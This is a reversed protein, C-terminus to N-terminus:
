VYSKKQYQIRLHQIMDETMTALDFEPQWGWDTRARSDDISESWSEAIKQRFDPQYEVRLDPYYRGIERAIEAPTFSMGALNYGTRVTIKEAPARMLELTARIADPMYIMPLRADPKLFCIFPEERVARHFIEVAYDTTGGGPMTQYGVVGPYRLSRVDLGFKLHYYQCWNEGASKSIGYVTEPHQITEQPTMRRPTRGGFVAISSPFFVKLQHARAVELVNFLGNINIDWALKPNEEGKASLIAALHYLETVGYKRIIGDLQDADLVDLLEFPGTPEQPPRIDSTIVNSQGYDDRLATALVSGLQGNAGVILVTTRKM